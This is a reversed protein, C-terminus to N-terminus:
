IIVARLHQELFSLVRAEYAERAFRHLDVHSAEPVMWFLKPVKAATYLRLSDVLTTRQDNEGNIIFIPCALAAIKDLPRLARSAIGLRWRLQMLMVPAVWEGMAGFRLRLRNSVASEIDTFVAELVVADVELPKPSLLAAAGGLSVGIVALPEGPLRASMFAVAAQVDRGELYGFTIAEGSSEGHAQFDFLLVSYGGANLFRAREVMSRRDSRVGHLLVVGGRGPRGLVLWGRLKAGSRSPIVVATADLDGPPAGVVRHAPAALNGGQWFAISLGGITVLGVLAFLYISWRLDSAMM